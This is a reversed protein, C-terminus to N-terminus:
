SPTASTKAIVDVHTKRLYAEAYPAWIRRSHIDLGLSSLIGRLLAVVRVLMFVERPIRSIKLARVEPPLDTDFPNMKAMPLDMRTDFLIYAVATELKENACDLKVGLLTLLEGADPSDRALAIVLQALAIRTTSSLVKVQGFDLITLGGQTGILLNGPHPDSQFIGLEFIQYAYVELLSTAFKLILAQEFGASLRMSLFNSLSFGEMFTMTIVSDSSASPFSRPVKIHEFKSCISRELLDMM